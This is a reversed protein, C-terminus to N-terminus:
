NWKAPSGQFYKILVDYACKNNKEFFTYIKDWADGKGWGTMTATIRSKNAGVKHFQIIEQLNKDESRIKATFAENLKVKYILLENPVYAPVGLTVDPFGPTVTQITGGTRLDMKIKQAMWNTMEKEATFTNWVTEVPKDFAIEFRLFKEGNATTFSSNVVSDKPLDKYRNTETAPNDEKKEATKKDNKNQCSLLICCVAIPILLKM